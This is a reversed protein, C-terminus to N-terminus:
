RHAQSVQHAVQAKHAGQRTAVTAVQAALVVVVVAAKKRGMVLVALMVRVLLAQVVLRDQTLVAAVQVAQSVQSVAAQRQQVALVVV